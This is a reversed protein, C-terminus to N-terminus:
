KIKEKHEKLTVIDLKSILEKKLAEIHTEYEDLKNQLISLENLITENEPKELMYDNLNYDSIQKIEGNEEGIYRGDKRIGTIFIREKVWNRKSINPTVWFPVFEKNEKKFDDICKRVASFSTSEKTKDTSIISSFMATETQFVITFGRYEEIKIISM